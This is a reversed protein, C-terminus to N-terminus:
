ALLPAKVFRDLQRVTALKDCELIRDRPQPFLNRLWFVPHLLNLGGRMADGLCRFVAARHLEDADAHHLRDVPMPGLLEVRFALARMPALAFQRPVSRAV